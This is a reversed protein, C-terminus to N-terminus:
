AKSRKATMGKIVLEVRDASCAEKKSDEAADRPLDRLDLCKTCVIFKHTHTHSHSHRLQEQQEKEIEVFGSVRGNFAKFDVDAEGSSSPLLTSGSIAEEACLIWCCPWGRFREVRRFERVSNCVSASASACM